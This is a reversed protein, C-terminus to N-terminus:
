ETITRLYTSSRILKCPDASSCKVMFLWIKYSDTGGKGDLSLLRGYVMESKATM